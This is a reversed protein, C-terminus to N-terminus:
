ERPRHINASYNILYKKNKRKSMLQENQKKSKNESKSKSQVNDKESRKKIKTHINTMWITIM